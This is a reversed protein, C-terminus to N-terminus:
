IWRLTPGGTVPVAERLPSEAPEITVSALPAKESGVKWNSWLMVKKM